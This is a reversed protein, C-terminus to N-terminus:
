YLAAIVTGIVDTEAVSGWVRSDASAERNDGLVVLRGAPVSFEKGGGSPWSDALRVTADRASLYPEQVATGNIFVIGSRISVRDAPLAVIRKVVLGARDPPILVIVEGREPVWGGRLVGAVGQTALVLVRQNPLLSPLMSTSTVTAVDLVLSAVAGLLASTVTAALLRNM